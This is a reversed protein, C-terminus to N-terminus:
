CVFASNDILFSRLLPMVTSASNYFAAHDGKLALLRANPIREALLLANSFPVDDDDRGHIILTPVTIQELPYAGMQAFQKIDNDYGGKRLYYHTGSNLMGTATPGYPMASAIPGALYLFPDCVLLSEVLQMLPRKWRPLTHMWEEKDYRQGVAGILVLSRCRERHRLAFQLASPGGGSFGIVSAQEIELRDLLAAYLDAQEEPTAGSQLPTRLYGPRSPSILLTSLPALFGAFALGQDYGGPTGHAYIVAPGQGTVQYEVTGRATEVERSESALRALVRRRWLRYSIFSGMLLALMARLGVLTLRM